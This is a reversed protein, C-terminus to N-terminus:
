TLPWRINRLPSRTTQRRARLPLRAGIVQESNRSLVRLYDTWAAVHVALVDRDIYSSFGLVVAGHVLGDHLHEPLPPIDGSATLEAPSETYEFSVTEGAEDTGPTPRLTIAMRNTTTNYKFDSFLQPPATQTDSQGGLRTWEQESVYQLAVDPMISCYVTDNFIGTCRAPLDYDSQNAVLTISGRRKAHSTRIKGLATTLAENIAIKVQDLYTSSVNTSTTDSTGHVIFLVRQQLELFTQEAM